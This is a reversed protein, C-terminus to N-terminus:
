CGHDKAHFEHMQHLMHKFKAKQHENLVEYMQHKARIKAMIKQAILEKKQNVLSSLKNQDMTDSTILEHIQHNISRMEKCDERLTAKLKIKIAKIKAKQTADLNLEHLLKHLNGKCCCGHAMWSADTDHMMNSSSNTNNNEAFLTTQGITFFLIIVPLVTLSIKKM